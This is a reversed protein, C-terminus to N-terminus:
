KYRNNLLKKMYRNDLLKEALEACKKGKTAEVCDPLDQCLIYLASSPLFKKNSMKTQKHYATENFFNSISNQLLVEFM